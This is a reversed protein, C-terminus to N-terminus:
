VTYPHLRVMKMLPSVRELAEKLSAVPDRQTARQLLQLAKQVRGQAQAKKGDKMLVGVLHSIVKDSGPIDYTFNTTSAGTASHPTDAQGDKVVKPASDLGGEKELIDAVPVAEEAETPSKEGNLINDYAVAEENVHPMTQSDKPASSVGDSSGPPKTSYYRLTRSLPRISRLMTLTMM